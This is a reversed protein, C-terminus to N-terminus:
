SSSIVPVTTENLVVECRVFPFGVQRHAGIVLLDAGSEAIRNLVFEWIGMTCETHIETISAIGHCALYCEVELASQRAEDDTKAVSVLTAEAGEEMLALSDNLARVAERSDNWVILPRRGVNSVDGSRPVLLVPRGSTIAVEEALFSSIADNSLCDQQGLVMLDGYRSYRTIQKLIEKDSGRNIDHWGSNPLDSTARDFLAKAAEVTEIYERSPWNIVLGVQEAHSRQGFVGVLRADNRQALLIAVNLRVMTRTGSDVHVLINKLKM